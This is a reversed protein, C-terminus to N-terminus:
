QYVPRIIEHIALANYIHRRFVYVILWIPVIVVQLSKLQLSLIEDWM